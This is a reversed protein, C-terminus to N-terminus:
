LIKKKYVEVGIIILVVLLSIYGIGQIIKQWANLKNVEKEVVQIKPITDSRIAKLSDCMARYYDVSDQKYVIRDRWHWTDKGDARIVISDHVNISDKYLTVTHYRVSDLRAKYVTDTHVEKVPVYKTTTCGHLLCIGFVLVTIFFLSWWFEKM